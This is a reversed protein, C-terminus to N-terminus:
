VKELLNCLTPYYQISGEESKSDRSGIQMFVSIFGGFCHTILLDSQQSSVSPLRREILWWGQGRETDEMAGNFM